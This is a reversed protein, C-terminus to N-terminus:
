GGPRLSNVYRAEEGQFQPVAPMRAQVAGFNLIVGADSSDGAAKARKAAELMKLGEMNPYSMVAAPASVATIAGRDNLVAQESTNASRTEKDGPALELYVRVGTIRGGMKRLWASVGDYDRDAVFEELARGVQATAHNDRGQLVSPHFLLTKQGDREILEVADKQDPQGLDFQVGHGQLDRLSRASPDVKKIVADLTRSEGRRSLSHELMRLMGPGMRSPGAASAQPSAGSASFSSGRSLAVASVVAARRPHDAPLRALLAQAGAKDGRSALVQAKVALADPNSPTSQLAGGLTGQVAPDEGLEGEKEALRRLAAARQEPPLKELAASLDGGRAAGAPLASQVVQRVPAEAKTRADDQAQAVAAALAALVLARM